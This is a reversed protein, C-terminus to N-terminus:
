SQPKMAAIQEPTEKVQIRYMGDPGGCPINLQTSMEDAHGDRCRVMFAVQAMNIYVVIGTVDTLKYLVPSTFMMNM